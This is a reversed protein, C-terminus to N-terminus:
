HQFQQVKAICFTVTKKWLTESSFKEVIWLEV